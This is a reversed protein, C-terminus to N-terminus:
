EFADSGWETLVLVLSIDQFENDGTDEVEHLLPVLRELSVPEFERTQNLLKFANTDGLM